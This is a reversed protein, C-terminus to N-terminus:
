FPTSHQLSAYIFVTEKWKVKKKKTHQKGHMLMQKDREEEQCRDNEIM